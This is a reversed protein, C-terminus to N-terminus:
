KNSFLRKRQKNDDMEKKEEDTMKLSLVDNEFEKTKIKNILTLDNYLKSVSEIYM